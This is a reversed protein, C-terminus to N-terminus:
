FISVLPLLPIMVGYILEFVELVAFLDCNGCPVGETHRETSQTLCEARHTVGDTGIGLLADLLLIHDIRETLIVWVIVDLKIVYLINLLILSYYLLIM